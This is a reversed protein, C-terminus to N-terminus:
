KCGRPIRRDGQQPQAPQAGGPKVWGWRRNGSEQRREHLCGLETLVDAIRMEDGRKRDALGREIGLDDDFISRRHLVRRCGQREVFGAITDFWPDRELRDAQQEAAIKEMEPTLWWQERDKWAAYAEAWLQPM